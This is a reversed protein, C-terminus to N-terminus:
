VNNTTNENIREYESKLKQLKKTQKWFESQEILGERYCTKLFSDADGANKKTNCEKCSSVLNSKWDHGGQSQPFIHDLCFDSQKLERLCYFCKYEDRKLIEIRKNRDHFFDDKSDDYIDDENNKEALILDQVKELESPLKVTYENVQGPRSSRKEVIGLQVLDNVGRKVVDHSMPKGRDSLLNKGLESLKVKIKRSGVIFYAEKFLLMYMVFARVKLFRSLYRTAYDFEILFDQVSISEYEPEEVNSIITELKDIIYKKM